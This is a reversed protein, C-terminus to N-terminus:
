VQQIVAELSARDHGRLADGSEGSRLRLTYRYVRMIVAALTACGRGGLADGFESLSPRRTRRWVRKILAELHIDLSAHNHGGLECM